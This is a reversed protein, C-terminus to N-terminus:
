EGNIIAMVVGNSWGFGDQLPYEGGGGQLTTDVVNYKEMMRGTEQFVKRNIRLWRSAIQSSLDTHGYNQLGKIAIWQLPAWGNPYDWQQGTNNLTTVLGGPMLFKQQLLAAVKQARDEPAIGFYLPFAMALSLVPTFAKKELHYDGYAQQEENWLWKNIATKRAEAKQEYEAAKEQNGAALHLDAIIDELHYLLSNLDVPVIEITQITSLSKADNFWRSSFDWGSEAAARINRYVHPRKEAPHTDAIEVDERYSEPRPSINDDYYHNLLSGDPMRVVRRHMDGAKLSKGGDMWFQYEKELQPLYALAAETGKYRQYLSVMAGFFPPQSRSLYYSRNGNPIHGTEDILWAFNRLMNELLDMRGSAALGYMTFYSDWYYIERFRGGPVVYAHPLPVLTSWAEMEDAERSLYNWHNRIHDEMSLQPDLHFEAAVLGPIEFNELVFEKLNFGPQSKQARYRSLIESPATKPRSDVFTKGDPFVQQLQVAEFLEGLHVAPRYYDTQGIPTEEQPPSTTETQPRPQCGAVFGILFSLLFLNATTKM